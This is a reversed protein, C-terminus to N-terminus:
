KHSQTQKTSNLQHLAKYFAQRLNREYRFLKEFPDRILGRSFARGLFSNDQERARDEPTLSPDPPPCLEDYNSGYEASRTVVFANGLFGTEIRLLRRLRWEACAMQRLLIHQTPTSPQHEAELESLVSLFDGPDECPLVADRATLGHTMANRSVRSKGEPTAPGTSLLANRRNAELQRESSM